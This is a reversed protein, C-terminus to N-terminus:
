FQVLESIRLGFIHNVASGETLTEVMDLRTKTRTRARTGTKLGVLALALVLIFVLDLNFV